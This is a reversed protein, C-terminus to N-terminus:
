CDYRVTQLLTSADEQASEAHLAPRPTLLFAASIGAIAPALARQNARTLM